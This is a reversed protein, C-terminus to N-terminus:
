YYFSYNISVYMGGKDFICKGCILAYDRIELDHLFSSIQKKFFGFHFIKTLVRRGVRKIKDSM